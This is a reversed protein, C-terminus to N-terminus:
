HVRERAREAHLARVNRLHAEFRPDSARGGARDLASRAEPLGTLALSTAASRRALDRLRAGRYHRFTWSPAKANMLADLHVVARRDFRALHGLAYPLAQWAKFTDRDLTAVEDLTAIENTAAGDLAEAGDLIATWDLIAALADPSGSLGLALLIQNHNPGEEPNLLMEILREAGAPGIRAAREEPMGEFYSARVLAETEPVTLMQAVVMGEASFVFLVVASLVLISRSGSGTRRIL